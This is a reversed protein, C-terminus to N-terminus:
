EATEKRTRTTSPPAPSRTFSDSALRPLRYIQCKTHWFISRQGDMRISYRGFRKLRDATSTDLIAKTGSQKRLQRAVENWDTQSFANAKPVRATITAGAGSRAIDAAWLWYADNHDAVWVVVM